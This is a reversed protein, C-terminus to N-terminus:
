KILFKIMIEYCNKRHFKVGFTFLERFKLCKLVDQFIFLNQISYKLSTLYLERWLEQKALCIKAM